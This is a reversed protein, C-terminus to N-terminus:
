ETVGGPCPKETITIAGLETGTGDEKLTFVMGPILWPGTKHEDKPGGKSFPRASTDKATPDTVYVVVDNLTTGTVDWHIMTSPHPKATACASTDDAWLGTPTTPQEIVPETVVPADKPKCAFLVLMIAAYLLAVKGFTWPGPRSM